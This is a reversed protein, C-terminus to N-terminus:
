QRTADSSTPPRRITNTAPSSRRLTSDSRAGPCHRRGDLAGTAVGGDSSRAFARRTRCSSKGSDARGSHLGTVYCSEAIVITKDENCTQKLLPTYLIFVTPFCVYVYVYAVTSLVPLGIDRHSNGL